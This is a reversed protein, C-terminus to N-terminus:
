SWKFRNDEQNSVIVMDNDLTNLIDKLERVTNFARDIGLSEKIKSKKQM